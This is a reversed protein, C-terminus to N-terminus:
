IGGLSLGKTTSQTKKEERKKRYQKIGLITLVTTLIGTGFPVATEIVKKTQDESLKINAM